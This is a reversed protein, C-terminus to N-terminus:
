VNRVPLILYVYDDNEKSKIIGPSIPGSLQIIGKESNLVRLAELLYKSNFAIEMPNGTVEVDIEEHIHGIDISDAEIIIKNNDIAFKIVNAAKKADERVLLAARDISNAFISTDFIFSTEFETPIVQKYAPFQGEILRSLLSFDERKFYVQNENFRIEIPADDDAMVRMLEQMTKGPVIFSHENAVEGSYKGVRFALRHTDTAVLYFTGDSKVEILMGTFIPRMEDDSLAVIVQRIMSKLINQEVNIKEIGNIASMLPFEESDFGKIKIESNGYTITLVNNNNSELTLPVDPLKRVIESFYKAAIVIAGEEVIDINVKKELGIELDTTKFTLSGDKASLYVGTLIPITTKSSVVRQVVQIGNLLDEKQCIIKM